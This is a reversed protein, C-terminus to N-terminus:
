LASRWSAFRLLRGASAEGAAAARRGGRTVRDFQFIAATAGGPLNEAVPDDDTITLLEVRAADDPLAVTVPERDNYGSPYAGGTFLPPV